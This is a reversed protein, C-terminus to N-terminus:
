LKPSQPTVELNAITQKQIAITKELIVCTQKYVDITSDLSACTSKWTVITRMNTRHTQYLSFASVLTVLYLVVGAAILATIM